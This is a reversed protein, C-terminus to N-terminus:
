LYVGDFQVIVLSVRLFIHIDGFVRLVRRKYSLQGPLPLFAPATNSRLALAVLLKVSM